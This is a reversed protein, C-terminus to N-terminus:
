VAVPAFTRQRRYFFCGAGFALMMGFLAFTSPEPVTPAGGAVDSGLTIDDFGIQNATGGFDVSRATGSFTVGVSKFPSFADGGDGDGGDSAFSPLTLSALMTGTGNLGDWVSVSGGVNVASYRFSFGTNFGGPVNMVDAGGSLFFVITKNGAEPFPEFNGGGGNDGDIIALSNSSFTIGDNPGPGSGFGGLGGNYYNNVPESSQLGEFTLVISAKAQGAGCFFLALAMQFLATRKM